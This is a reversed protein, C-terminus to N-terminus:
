DTNLSPRSNDNALQWASLFGLRAIKELKSYNIRDATDNVTHYDPHLGTTFLFAPVGSELFPWHDSRRILGLQHDDMEFLLDLRITQNAAEIVTKLDSSRSHGIVHLTNINQEGTQEPLGGFRRDNPNNVEQNRGIMDLQLVSSVKELPFLPSTTYYRSGLLGREEGDWFAFLVTRRPKVAEIIFAEAIELVGATGSADDDAGNFIRNERGGIHDFHASIIVCEDRLLPDTGDIKGIVNRIRTEKRDLDTRLTVEFNEFARSRPSSEKNISERISEIKLNGNLVGELFKPNTYVVPITVEEVYPALTFRARDIEEPYLFRAARSLDNLRRSDSILMIGSVGHSMANHIKYREASYRSNSVKQLPSDPDESEPDGGLIVAIKGKASIGSYDDYEFEPATIGYGAFILNGKSEANASLHSPLFDEKLVAEKAENKGAQSIALFNKEGLEAQLLPVDQFYSGNNMAPPVGMEELKYALFRAAAKNGSTNAARGELEDSALFEVLPRIEEAKISEIASQPLDGTAGILLLNLLVMFAIASTVWIRTM